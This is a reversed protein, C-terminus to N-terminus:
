PFRLKMFRLNNEINEVWDVGDPVAMFTNNNQYPAKGASDTITRLIRYAKRGLADTIEADVKDRVRYYRKATDAGFQTLVTSDCRYTIYKGVQLPFYDSLPPSELEIKKESCGALSIVLAMFAVIKLTDKM